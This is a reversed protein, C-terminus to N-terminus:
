MMPEIHNKRENAVSTQIKPARIRQYDAMRLETLSWNRLEPLQNICGKRTKTLELNSPDLYVPGAPYNEPKMHDM